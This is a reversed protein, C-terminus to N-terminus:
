MNFCNYLNKKEPFYILKSCRGSVTGEWFYEYVTASFIVVIEICVPIKSM